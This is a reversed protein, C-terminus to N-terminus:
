KFDQASGGPVWLGPLVQLSAAYGFPYFTGPKSPNPARQITLKLRGPSLKAGAQYGGLPKGDKDYNAIVPSGTTTILTWPPQKTTGALRKGQASVQPAIITDATAGPDCNTTGDQLTYNGLYTLAYLTGDTQNKGIFIAPQCSYRWNPPYLIITQTGQNPDTSLALSPQAMHFKQALKGAAPNHASASFIQGLGPDLGTVSYGPGLPITGNTDIATYIDILKLSGQSLAGVITSTDAPSGNFLPAPTTAAYFIPSNPTSSNANNIITDLFIYNLSANQSGGENLTDNTSTAGVWWASLNGKPSHLQAGCGTAGYVTSITIDTCGATCPVNNGLPQQCEIVGQNCTAATVTRPAKSSLQATQTGSATLADQYGGGYQSTLFLTGQTNNKLGISGSGAHGLYTAPTPQQCLMDARLHAVSALIGLALLSTIADLKILLKV